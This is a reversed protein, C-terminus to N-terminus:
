RKDPGKIIIIPAAGLTLLGMAAVFIGLTRSNGKIQNPNEPNYYITIIKGLTYTSSTNDITGEYTVGDVEYKVIPVSNNHNKKGPHHVYEFGTIEATTKEYGGTHFFAVYIGIGVFFLGAIIFIIGGIIREGM